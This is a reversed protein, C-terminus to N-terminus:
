RSQFYLVRKKFICPYLYCYCNLTNIKIIFLYNRVEHMQLRHLINLGNSRRFPSWIVIERFVTGSFVIITEEDEGISTASYRIMTIFLIVLYHNNFFNLICIYLNHLIIKFKSIMCLSFDDISSLVL